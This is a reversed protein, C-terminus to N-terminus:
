PSKWWALQLPGLYLFLRLTTTHTALHFFECWTAINRVWADCQATLILESPATIRVGSGNGELNAQDALYVMASSLKEVTTCVFQMAVSFILRAGSKSAKPCIEAGRLTSSPVKAGSLYALLCRYPVWIVRIIGCSTWVQPPARIQLELHEATFKV